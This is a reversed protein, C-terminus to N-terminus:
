PNDEESSVTRVYVAAGQMASAPSFRQHAQLYGGLDHAAPVAVAQASATQVTPASALENPQPNNFLPIAMWAVFAVAVASAAASLAFRRTHTVSKRQPALVTPEAALRARFSLPLAGATHGRLADGILHYTDWVGRLEAETKLRSICGECEPGDLQGDMLASIQESM